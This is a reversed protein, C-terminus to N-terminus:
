LAAGPQRGNEVLYIYQQRRADRALSRAPEVLGAIGAELRDPGDEMRRREGQRRVAAGTAQGDADLQDRRTEGIAPQEGAGAPNPLFEARRVHNAIPALSLMMSNSLENSTGSGGACAHFSRSSTSRMAGQM